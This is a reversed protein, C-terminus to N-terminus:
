AKKVKYSVSYAEGTIARHCIDMMYMRMYRHNACAVTLAKRNDKKAYISTLYIIDNDNVTYGEGLMADVVRQVDLKLKDNARNLNLRGRGLTVDHFEKLQRAEDSMAYSDNVGKPDIGLEICKRATLSFNLREVIYNWGKDSGIGGDIHKHLRLPDIPKQVDYVDMYDPKGKEKKPKAAITTYTLRRAAELMPNDVKRLEDFCVSESLAQYEGIKEEMDATIKSVKEFEAYKVSEDYQAKLTNIDIRLAAMQEVPSAVIVVQEVTTPEKVTQNKKAM